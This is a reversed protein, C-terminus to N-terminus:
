TRVTDKADQLHVQAMQDKTGLWPPLTLHMCTEKVNTKPDVDVSNFSAAVLSSQVTAMALIPLLDQFM